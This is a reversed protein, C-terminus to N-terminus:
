LAEKSVRIVSDIWKININAVLGVDIRFVKKTRMRIKCLLLMIIWQTNLEM